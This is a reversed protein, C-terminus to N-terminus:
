GEQIPELIMLLEAIILATAGWIRREEFCFCPALFKLGRREILMEGWTERDSLHPLPIQLIAAVESPSPFFEPPQRTVAVCPMVHFNSNFVFVPSLRGLHEIGAATGGVEEVYERLAADEPTEQSEITGGPFCVQGAHTGMATPRVTLLLHWVQAIPYLLVLVAAERASRSPPCDHRSYALEPAMRRHAKGGPLPQRLAHALTTPRFDAPPLM